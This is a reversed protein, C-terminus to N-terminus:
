SKTFFGEAEAREILLQTWEWPANSGHSIEVNRMLVRESTIGHEKWSRGQTHFNHLQPIFRDLASAFRAEATQRTEFEEWLDRFEQAQDPPLLGFIRDAARQEREAKDDQADYIYTDGADIEVIDHILVMRIVKGVDLPENAHEALVMALLALHWSHEASNESRTGDILYTRRYVSKLKDLELIFYLQRALRDM